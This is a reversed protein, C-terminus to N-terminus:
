HFVKTFSLLPKKAGKMIGAVYGADVTLPMGNVALGGRGDDSISFTNDPPMLGAIKLPKNDFKLGHGQHDFKISITQERYIANGKNGDVRFAMLYMVNSVNKLVGIVTQNDSQPLTFYSNDIRSYDRAALAQWIEACITRGIQAMKEQQLQERNRQQEEEQRKVLEEQKRKELEEQQKELEAQRKESEEQERKKQAEEFIEKKHNIYLDHEEILERKQSIDACDLAKSFYTENISYQNQSDSGSSPDQFDVPKCLEWWIRYDNPYEESLDVLLDQAKLYYTPEAEHNKDENKEYSLQYYFAAEELKKDVESATIEQGAGSASEKRQLVIKNGCQLCFCFSKEENIQTELGCSPCFIKRYAM